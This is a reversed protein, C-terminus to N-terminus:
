KAGSRDIYVIDLFFFDCECILVNFASSCPLDRIFLLTHLLLILSSMKCYMLDVTDWKISLYRSIYCSARM